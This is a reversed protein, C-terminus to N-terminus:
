KGSVALEKEQAVFEELVTKRMLTPPLLGQALIFDHFRLRNFNEGLLIETEARLEMLRLYGCFYSTAQGPARFTYREVESLAMAESLGGDEKLIRLAEDRSIEGSQLGPDVFARIARLLLSQLASFQGEVPFYPKMEAEVYLGWGEVNVSNFAFMVRAQSVGKEVVSAFQMEHGPRGEHVALAWSIADHTFDDLQSDQGDEAGPFKLPLVFEGQEGTNGILRPPQMHPVPSAASEAESALRIIMDREPLTVIKEREIIEELNKMRRNYFPLIDEGVLQEKKLAQILERYDTAALGKKKAVLPTLGQMQNQIEKYAVRGRRVLEDLPMDIGYQKLQFAYLEKPLRFDDRAHPMLDNKIFENYEDIQSKLTQCSEEYGSIKYKQFLKEIGEVFRDSNGLNRDIEGKFPGFLNPNDFGSRTLSAALQTLPRYGDQLGTYKKLRALAAPRREAPIQDDLLARIGNFITQPVDFYPLEYKQTLRISELSQEAAEIMIQLDQRVERQQENAIDQKLQTLAKEYDEKRRELYGPSLDLIEEDLGEVGWRGANEPFARALVQLLVQSYENSKAVWSQDQQAFMSPIMFLLLLFLNLASITFRNTKLSILKM